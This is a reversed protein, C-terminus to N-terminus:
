WGRPEALGHWSSSSCWLQALSLGQGLSACCEGCHVREVQMVRNKVRLLTSTASGKSLLSEATVLICVFVSQQNQFVMWFDGEGLLQSGRLKWAVVFTHGPQKSKTHTVAHSNVEACTQGDASQFHMLHAHFCCDHGEEEWGENQLFLFMWSNLERKKHYPKLRDGCWWLIQRKHNHTAVVAHLTVSSFRFPNSANVNEMLSCMEM